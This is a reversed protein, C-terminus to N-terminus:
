MDVEDNDVRRNIGGLLTKILAEPTLNGKADPNFQTTDVMDRVGSKLAIDDDLSKLFKVVGPDNGIQVFQIGVQHLPMGMNDFQKAAFAIINPVTDTPRGDTIVVFNVPKCKIKTRTKSATQVAEAYERQYEGLLQELKMGLLTPGYPKFNFLRRADYVTQINLGPERKNLFHVDIGNEDEKIAFKTLTAIAEQAQEWRRGECMSGSDDVVFVTDYKSLMQLQDEEESTFVIEKTETSPSTKMDGEFKADKHIQTYSPPPAPASKDIQATSGPTPSSGRRFINLNMRM